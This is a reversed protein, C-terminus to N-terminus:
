GACAQRKPNEPERVVWARLVVVVPLVDDAVERAQDLEVIRHVGKNHRQDPGEHISHSAGM